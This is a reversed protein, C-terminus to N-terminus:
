RCLSALDTELSALNVSGRWAKKKKGKHYLVSYPLGGNWKKDIQYLYPAIKGTPKLYTRFQPKLSKMWGISFNKQQFVVSVDLLVANVEKKRNFFKVMKPLDHICINCWTAWFVFLSCSQNKLGAIDKENLLETEHAPSKGAWLLLIGLVLTKWM